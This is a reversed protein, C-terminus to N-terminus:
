GRVRTLTVSGDEHLKTSGLPNPLERDRSFTGSLSADQTLPFQYTTTVTESGLRGSSSQGLTLTLQDGALKAQTVNMAVSVTKKKKDLHEATVTVKEGSVTVTWTEAPMAQGVLAGLAGSGPSLKVSWKGGLAGLSVGAPQTAPVLAPATTPQTTTVSAVSQAITSMPQTTAAPVSVGAAGLLTGATQRVAQEDAMASMGALALVAASLVVCACKM